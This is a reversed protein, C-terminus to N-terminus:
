LYYFLQANGTKAKITLASSFISSLGGANPIQLLTRLNNYKPVPTILETKGSISHISNAFRQLFGSSFCVLIIALVRRLNTHPRDSNIQRNM